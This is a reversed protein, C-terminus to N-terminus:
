RWVPDVGEPLPVEFANLAFSVLTYYGCVSVLEVVGVDGLLSRADDFTEDRLQGTAGLESAVAYVIREDDSSFSPLEGMAIAQLVDSAIGHQRAMRAHAWWEYEARWRAGTTVIALEVLRRDLSTEFRLAAGLEAIHTGVSPATVWANFPGALHDGDVRDGRSAVISDWLTRGADDVDDRGLYPLRSM